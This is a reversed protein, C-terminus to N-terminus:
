DGVLVDMTVFYHWAGNWLVAIGGYHRGYPAGIEVNFNAQGNEQPVQSLPVTSKITPHNEVLEFEENMQGKGDYYYIISDHMIQPLLANPASGNGNMLEEYFKLNIAGTANSYFRNNHIITHDNVVAIEGITKNGNWFKFSYSSGTYWSPNSRVSDGRLFENDNFLQVLKELQETDTINVIMGDSGRTLEVMTVDNFNFSQIGTGCASLTVTIFAVLCIFLAVRKM